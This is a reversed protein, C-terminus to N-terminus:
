SFNCRILFYDDGSDSLKYSFKVALEPDDPVYTLRFLDKESILYRSDM